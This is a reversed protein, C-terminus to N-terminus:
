FSAGHEKACKLVVRVEEKAGISEGNSVEYMKTYEDIGKLITIVTPTVVAGAKLLACVQAHREYVGSVYCDPEDGVALDEFMKLCMELPTQGDIMAEVDRGATWASPNAPAFAPLMMEDPLDADDPHEFLEDRTFPRAAASM